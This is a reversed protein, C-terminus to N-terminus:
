KSLLLQTLTTDVCFLIHLLTGLVFMFLLSTVYDVGSLKHYMYALLFTGLVDIIAINAIRFSHVGEGPRGFINRYKCLM